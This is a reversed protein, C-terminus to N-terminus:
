LSCFLGGRRSVTTANTQVDGVSRGEEVQAQPEFADYRLVPISGRSSGGSGTVARHRRVPMGGATKKYRMSSVNQRLSVALELKVDFVRAFRM